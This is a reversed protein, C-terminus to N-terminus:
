GNYTRIWIKLTRLPYTDKNIATSNKGFTSDGHARKTKTTNAFVTFGAEKLEYVENKSAAVKATYEGAELDIL